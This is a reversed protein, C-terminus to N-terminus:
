RTTMKVITIGFLLLVFLTLTILLAINKKRREKLRTDDNM